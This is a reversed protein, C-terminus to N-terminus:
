IFSIFIFNKQLNNNVFNNVSYNFKNEELLQENTNFLNIKNKLGMM